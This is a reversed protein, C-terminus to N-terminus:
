LNAIVERHERLAPVAEKRIKNLLSARRGTSELLTDMVEELLELAADAGQLLTDKTEATPKAM